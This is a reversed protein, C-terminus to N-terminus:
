AGEEGEASLGANLSLQFSSDEFLGRLFRDVDERICARGRGSKREFDDLEFIRNRAGGDVLGTLPNAVEPIQAGGVPHFSAPEPVAAGGLRHVGVDALTAVELVRHSSLAEAVSQERIDAVALDAGTSDGLLGQQGATVLQLPDT